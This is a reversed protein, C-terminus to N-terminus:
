GLVCRMSVFSLGGNLWGGCHGKELRTYELRALELVAVSEMELVGVVALWTPYPTIYSEWGGHAHVGTVQLNYHMYTVGYCLVQNTPALSSLVAQALVADRERDLHFCGRLILLPQHKLNLVSCHPPHIENARPSNRNVLVEKEPGTLRGHIRLIPQQIRRQM